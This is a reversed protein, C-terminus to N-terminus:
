PGSPADRQQDAHAHASCSSPRELRLEPPALDVVLGAHDSARRQGPGDLVLRAARLHPVFAPGLLVYDIRKSLAGDEYFTFGPADPHLASWADTLGARRLRGLADSDPIQNFDGALITAGDLQGLHHLTETVNDRAQAAVWSIHANVVHLPGAPGDVTARLLVRANPDDGGDHRSLPHASSALVPHRSLFAIGDERGDDHRMATHYVVDHGTLDCALQMAQNLGSEVAPDLAVAQLAVVDPRTEGIAAVIRPRRESWPGHREGFANLNLTMLRFM